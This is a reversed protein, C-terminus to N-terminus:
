NFGSIHKISNIAGVVCRNNCPRQSGFLFAGRLTNHDTLVFMDFTRKFEIWFANFCNLAGSKVIRGGQM